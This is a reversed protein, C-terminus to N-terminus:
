VGQEKVHPVRPALLSEWGEGTAIVCSQKKPYTVLITWGGSPSVVVEVLAGDTSLGLAHPTESYQKELRDLIEARPGCFTQAVAGMPVIGLTAAAIIAILKPM